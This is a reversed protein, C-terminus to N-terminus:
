LKMLNGVFNGKQFLLQSRLELLIRLTNEDSWWLGLYLEYNPCTTPVPWPPLSNRELHERRKKISVWEGVHGRYFPDTSRHTLQWSLFFFVCLTNPRLFLLCCLIGLELSSLLQGRAKTTGQWATPQSRTENTSEHSAQMMMGLIYICVHPGLIPTAGRLFLRSCHFWSM